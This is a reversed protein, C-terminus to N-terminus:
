QAAREQNARKKASRRTVEDQFERFRPDEMLAQKALLRYEAALGLLMQGKDDVGDEHGDPRLDWESSLEHKGSVIANMLAELGMGWDPHVLKHGALKQFEAWAEPYDRMDIDISAEMDPASDQNFTQRRTPKSFRIGNNWIAKAVPTGDADGVYVPSVTALWNTLSLPNGEDEPGRLPITERRERPHGFSDYVSIFAGPTIRSQVAELAGRVDQIEKVGPVDLLEQGTRIINPVTSRALGELYREAYMDPESMVTVIESLGRTFSQSTISNGVAAITAVALKDRKKSAEPDVDDSLLSLETMKETVDAMIGLMTGLPEITRYDVWQDGILVSYPQHGAKIWRQREGPDSPGNGTVQGRLVFDSWTSMAMSGMSLKAMALDRAAGGKAIEKWFTDPMLTAMPTYSIGTKTINAITTVFPAMITAPISIAPNPNRKLGLVGKAIMGPEQTFTARKAEERATMRMAETPEAILQAVRSRLAKGTLAKGAEDVEQSAHRWAQAFVEGNYNFTKFMEDGAVLMRGWVRYAEGMLDLGRAVNGDKLGFLEGGIAKGRPLDVKGIGYGSTGNWFAKGMNVFAAKTAWAYGAATMLAEGRQVEAGPIRAAVAREPIRTLMFAFNSLINRGQTRLGSVLGLTWAERAADLTRAAFGKEVVNNLAENSLGKAAAINAALLETAQRGGLEEGIERVFTLRELDDGETARKLINLARGAESRAASFKELFAQHVAMSKRFAFLNGESPNEAVLEATQRVMKASSAYFTKLADLQAATVGQKKPDLALMERWGMEKAAAKTQAHSVVGGKGKAILHANDTALKDLVAEIYDTTNIRAFNPVVKKVVAPGEGKAALAVDAADLVDDSASATAARSAVDGLPDDVTVTLTKKSPDGLVLMDRKLLQAADADRAAEQVARNEFGTDAIRAAARKAKFAKLGKALVGLSDITAQSLAGGLAGTAATKLKAELASDDEETALYEAVPNELWPVSQILNALNEQDEETVLLEAAAGQATMQTFMGAKTTAGKVGAARMLNGVGKMGFAFQTVGRILGSVVSRGEPVEPLDNLVDVGADDQEALAAMEEPSVYELGEATVRIGGLSAHKDLFNSLPEVLDSIGQLADVIGGATQVTIDSFLDLGPMDPNPQGRTITAAGTAEGDSAVTQAQPTTGDPASQTGTPASVGDQKFPDAQMEAPPPAFRGAAADIDTENRSQIYFGDLAPAAAPINGTAM